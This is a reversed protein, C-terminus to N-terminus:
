FCCTLVSLHGSLVTTPSVGVIVENAVNMFTFLRPSWQGTVSFDGPMERVRRLVGVWASSGSSAYIKVM